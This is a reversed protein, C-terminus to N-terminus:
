RKCMGHPLIKSWLIIHQVLHAYCIELEDKSGSVEAIRQWILDEVQVTPSVLLLYTFYRRHPKYCSCAHM